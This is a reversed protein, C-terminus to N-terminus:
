GKNKSFSPSGARKVGSSSSESSAAALDGDPAEQLSPSSGPPPLHQAELSRRVEFVEGTPQMQNINAGWPEKNQAGPDATWDPGKPYSPPGVGIVTAKEVTTFRGRPADAEIQAFRHLTAPPQRIDNELTARKESQLLERESEATM